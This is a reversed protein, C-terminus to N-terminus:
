RLPLLIAMLDATMEALTGRTEGEVFDPPPSLGDCRRHAQEVLNYAGDYNCDEILDAATEMMNTLANLRDEGSNGPGSGELTGAEVSDDIFSLTEQVLTSPEPIPELAFSVTFLAPLDDSGQQEWNSGGDTTHFIAGYPAGNIVAWAEQSNVASVGMTFEWTAHGDWSMGGDTSWYIGRDAVIWVNSTSVACM